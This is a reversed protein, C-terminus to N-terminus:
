KKSCYYAVVVVSVGGMVFNASVRVAKPVASRKFVGSSDSELSVDRSYLFIM